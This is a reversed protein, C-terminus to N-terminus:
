SDLWLKKFIQIKGVKPLDRVLFIVVKEMLYIKLHNIKQRTFTPLYFVLKGILKRSNGVRLGSV